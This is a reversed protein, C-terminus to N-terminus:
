LLCVRPWLGCDSLGCSDDWLDGWSNGCSESDKGQCFIDFDETSVPNICRRKVVVTQDEGKEREIKRMSSVEEKTERDM